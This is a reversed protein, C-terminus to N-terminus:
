VYWTITFILNFLRNLFTRCYSLKCLLLIQGCSFIKGLYRDLLCLSAEYFLSQQMGMFIKILSSSLKLLSWFCIPAQISHCRLATYCDAILWAHHHVSTIGASLLCLCSSRSSSPVYSSVIPSFHVSGQICM